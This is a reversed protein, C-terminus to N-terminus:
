KSDKQIELDHYNLKLILMSDERVGENLEGWGRTIVSLTKISKQIFLLKGQM